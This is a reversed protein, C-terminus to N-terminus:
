WIGNRQFWNEIGMRLLRDPDNFEPWPMTVRSGQTLDIQAGNNGSGARWSVERAAWIDWGPTDEVRVMRYHAAVVEHVFMFADVAAVITGGVASSTAIILRLTTTAIGGAILGIVALTLGAITIPTAPGLRLMIRDFAVYSEHLRGVAVVGSRVELMSRVFRDAFQNPFEMRMLVPMSGYWRGTPNDIQSNMPTFSTNYMSLPNLTENHLNPLQIYPEDEYIVEITDTVFYDINSLTLIRSNFTNDYLSIGDIEVGRAVSSLENITTEGFLVQTSDNARFAFHYHGYLNTQSSYMYDETMLFYFINGEWEYIEEIIRGSEDFVQHHIIGEDLSSMPNAFLVTTQIAFVLILLYSVAIRIKRIM